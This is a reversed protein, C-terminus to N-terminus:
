SIQTFLNKKSFNLLDYNQWYSIKPGLFKCIYNKYYIFCVIFNEHFDQFSGYIYKNYHGMYVRYLLLM